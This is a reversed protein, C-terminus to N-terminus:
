HSQKLKAEHVPSEAQRRTPWLTWGLKIGMTAGVILVVGVWQIGNLAHNFFVWDTLIATLPNLFSLVALM